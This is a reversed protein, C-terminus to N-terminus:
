IAELEELAKKYGDITKKADELSIRFDPDHVIDNRIQHSAVLDDLSPVQEKTVKKLKDGFSEGGFGMRALVEEILNEAEIIALKWDASNPTELRKLIAQWKKEANSVGFFKRNKTEIFYLIPDFAKELAITWRLWNSRNLVYIIAFLFFLFAFTFFIEILLIIFQGTPSYIYNLIEM